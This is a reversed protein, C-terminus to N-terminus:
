YTEPLTGASKRALHSAAIGEPKANGGPPDLASLDPLDAPYGMIRRHRDPDFAAALRVIGIWMERFEVARPRDLGVLEILRAAEPTTGRITGDDSVVVSELLLVALPDPTLSDRKGLNCPICAYLLNGYETELTPDTAVPLFHDIAYAGYARTWVERTLWYVCRFAFEDRLWPHYSEYGSYGRPGHRRVHPAAPYDFPATM